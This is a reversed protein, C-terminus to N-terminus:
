EGRLSRMRELCLEEDDLLDFTIIPLPLDVYRDVEDRGCDYIDLCGDENQIMLNGLRDAEPGECCALGEFCFEEIQSKHALVREGYYHMLRYGSELLEERLKQSADENNLVVVAETPTIQKSTM